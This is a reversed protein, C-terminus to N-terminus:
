LDYILFFNPIKNVVLMEKAWLDGNRRMRVASLLVVTFETKRGKESHHKM